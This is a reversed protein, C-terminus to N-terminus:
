VEASALYGSSGNGGAVLVTGDRLLMAAYGGRALQMSITATWSGTASDYLEASALIVGGDIVSDTAGVVLLKRGPLLAARANIRGESMAGTASWQGTSPDYVEASSSAGTGAM